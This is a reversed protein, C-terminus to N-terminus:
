NEGRSAQIKAQAANVGAKLTAIVDAADSAAFIATGAVIVNSGIYISFICDFSLFRRHLKNRVQKQM